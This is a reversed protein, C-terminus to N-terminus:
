LLCAPLALKAPIHGICNCLVRFKAPSVGPKISQLLERSIRLIKQVLGMNKNQVPGQVNHLGDQSSCYSFLASPTFLFSIRPLFPFICFDYLAVDYSKMFFLFLETNRSILLSFQGLCLWHLPPFTWIMLHRKPWTISKTEMQRTSLMHWSLILIIPSVTQLFQCTDPLVKLGYYLVSM